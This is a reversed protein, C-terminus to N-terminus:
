IEDYKRRVDSDGDIKYYERAQVDMSAVGEFVDDFNDIM